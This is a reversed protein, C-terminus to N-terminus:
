VYIKWYPSKPNMEKSLIYEADANTILAGKEDIHYIKQKYCLIITKMWSELSDYMMVPKDSKTVPPCFLCLSKYTDSQPNMDLFIPYEFNGYFIFPLMNDCCKPYFVNSHLNNIYLSTATIYSAYNGFTTLKTFSDSEVTKRYNFLLEHSCGTKWLYLDLLEPLCNFDCNNFYEVILEKTKYHLDEDMYQLIPNGSEILVSELEELLENM